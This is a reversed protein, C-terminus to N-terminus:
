PALIEAFHALGAWKILDSTRYGSKVGEWKVEGIKWLGGFMDCVIETGAGRLMKM